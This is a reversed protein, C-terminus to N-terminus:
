GVEKGLQILKYNEFVSYIVYFIFFPVIFWKTGPDYFSRYTMIGGITVFLRGMIAAMMLGTVGKSSIM